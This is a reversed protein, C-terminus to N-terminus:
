RGLEELFAVVTAEHNINAHALTAGDRAAGALVKVADDLISM